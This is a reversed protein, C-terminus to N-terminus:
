RNDSCNHRNFKLVDRGRRKGVYTQTICESIRYKGRSFKYITLEREVASSHAGVQLDAYGNTSTRKATFDQGTDELLQTYGRASRGYVFVPGNAAGGCAGQFAILFEPKGDRNLDREETDVEGALKAASGQFQEEVCQKVDQNDRAIQEVLAAPVKAALTMRPRAKKVGRILPFGSQVLSLLLLVACLPLSLKKLTV